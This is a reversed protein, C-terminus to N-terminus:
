HLQVKQTVLSKIRAYEIASIEVYVMNIFMLRYNIEHKIIYIVQATNVAYYNGTVDVLEIM